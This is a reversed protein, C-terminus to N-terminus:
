SPLFRLDRFQRLRPAMEEIVGFFEMGGADARLRSFLKLVGPELHCRAFQRHNREVFIRSGMNVTALALNNVAVSHSQALPGHNDIM